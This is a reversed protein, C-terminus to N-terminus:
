LSRLVASLDSLKDIVADPNLSKIGEKNHGDWSIESVVIVVKCGVRKALKVDEETDGIIVIEGINVCEIKSIHKLADDKSNFGSDLTFIDDFYRDLDYLNLIKNVFTSHSNSLLFIREFREKLENLTGTAYSSLRVHDQGEASTLEVIRKEVKKLVSERDELPEPLIKEITGKISPILKGEIEDDTVEFGNEELAKRALAIYMWKSDILVGDFDFVLIRTMKCGM